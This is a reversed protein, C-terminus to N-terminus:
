VDASRAGNNTLIDLVINDSYRKNHKYRSWFFISGPEIAALEAPSDPVEDM